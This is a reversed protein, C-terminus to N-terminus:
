VLLASPAGLGAGLPGAAKRQAAVGAEDQEIAGMVAELCRVVGLAKGFEVAPEGAMLSPLIDWIACSM